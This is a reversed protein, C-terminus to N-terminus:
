KIISFKKSFTENNTHVLVFYTGNNLSELSITNKESIKVTKGLYNIIEIKDFDKENLEISIYDKAPNPFVGIEVNELDNIAVTSKLSVHVIADNCTGKNDCVTYSFYDTSAIGAVRTYKINQGNIVATAGAINPMTINTIILDDGDDDSDNELVNLSYESISDSYIYDYSDDIALPATNIKFVLALAQPSAGVSITDNTNANVVFLDGYNAYDTATSFTTESIPDFAISVGSIDTASAFISGDSMDYYAIKGNFDIYIKDEIVDICKTFSPLSIESIIDTAIEIRLIKDAAPCIAYLYNGENFIQTVGKGAEGLNITRYYAGTNADALIIEGLTDAYVGYPPYLDITGKVQQGIYITDNVSVGGNCQQTAETVAFEFVLSTKNFAYLNSDTQNYWNGVYLYNDDTFLSSASPSVGPFNVEAIRTKTDLNYSFIKTQASVFAINGEVLIDQVSNTKMSDIVEYTKDIINYIGINSEPTGFADEGNAIILEAAYKNQQANLNLSLLIPLVFLLKIHKKKM